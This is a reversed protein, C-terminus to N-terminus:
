CLPVPAGWPRGAAGCVRVHLLQPQLTITSTQTNTQAAANAQKCWLGAESSETNGADLVAGAAPVGPSGTGRTLSTVRLSGPELCFVAGTGLPAILIFEPM